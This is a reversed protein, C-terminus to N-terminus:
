SEMGVGRGMLGDEKMLQVMLGHVNARGTDKDKLTQRVKTNDKTLSSQILEQRSRLWRNSKVTQLSM